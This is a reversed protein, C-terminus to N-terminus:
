TDKHLFCVKLSINRLFDQFELSGTFFPQELVFPVMIFKDLQESNISTCNEFLSYTLLNLFIANM